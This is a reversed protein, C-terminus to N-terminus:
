IIPACVLAASLAALLDAKADFTDVTRGTDQWDKAHAAGIRIGGVATRQGTESPNLFVPGVEFLSIDAVARNVNRAAASLLNPLVSPRMMSLDTSIPNAVGLADDGGGFLRAEEPRLFSFTVAETMGRGALLRRLLVPRVQEASFAPQAIYNDRPLATMELNDYGHIRIIEEVLDAPGDIDNRWSPVDVQWLDATTRKVHLVWILWSRHRSITACSIGTLAKTRAPSFSVM